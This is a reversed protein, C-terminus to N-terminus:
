PEPQTSGPGVAGRLVREAEALVARRLLVSVPVGALRAAADVRARQTAALRTSTTLTHTDIQAHSPAM